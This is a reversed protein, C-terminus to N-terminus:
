NPALAASTEGCYADDTYIAEKVNTDLLLVRKMDMAEALPSRFQTCSRASAPSIRRMNPLWPKVSSMPSICPPGAVATRRQRLTQGICPTARCNAAAPILQQSQDMCTCAQGDSRSWAPPQQHQLWQPAEGTALAASVAAARLGGSAPTGLNHGAGTGWLASGRVSEAASRGKQLEVAASGGGCAGCARSDSACAQLKRGAGAAAAPRAPVMIRGPARCGAWTAPITTRTLRTTSITTITNGHANAPPPRTRGLVRTCGGGQLPDNADCADLGAATSPLSWHKAYTFVVVPRVCAAAPVHSPCTPLCARRRPAASVSPRALYMSFILLVAAVIALATCLNRAYRLLSTTCLGTAADDEGIGVRM